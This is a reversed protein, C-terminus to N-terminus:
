SIMVGEVTLKVIFEITCTAMIQKKSKFQTGFDVAATSATRRGRTLLLTNAPEASDQSSLIIEGVNPVDYSDSCSRIGTVTYGIEAMMQDAKHKAKRVARKILALKEADEDYDWNISRVKTKNGESCIGLIDGLVTLNTLTLKVTYNASSNKSFLGANTAVSVAETDVEISNDIKKIREITSKLDESATVAANGFLLKESTVNIFVFARTAEIESQESESVRLIGHDM